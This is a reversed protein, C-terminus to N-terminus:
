KAYDKYTSLSHVLLPCSQNKGNFSRADALFGLNLEADHKLLDISSRVAASLIIVRREQPVFM